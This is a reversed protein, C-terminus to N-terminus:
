RRGLYKKVSIEFNILTVKIKTRQFYLRTSRSVHCPAADQVLVGTGGYTSNNWPVFNRHLIVQYASSDIMAQKGSLIVCPGPGRWSISGWVLGKAAHKPAQKIAAARSKVFCHQNAKGLMFYSEDSFSHIKFQEGMEIKKEVYIMRLLRNVIRDAHGYRVRHQVLGLEARINAVVDKKLQLRMREEVHDIIQNTTQTNGKEYLEDVLTKVGEHM